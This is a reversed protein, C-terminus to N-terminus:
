LGEGSTVYLTAAGSATVGALATAGPPRSLVEVIGPPLPLDALSAAGGWRVFVTAPGANHLRVTAAGPDVAVSASSTGAALTATTGAMFPKTM